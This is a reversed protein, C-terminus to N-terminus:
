TATEYLSDTFQIISEVNKYYMQIFWAFSRICIPRHMLLFLATNIFSGISIKCTLEFSFPERYVVYRWWPWCDNLIQKIYLHM